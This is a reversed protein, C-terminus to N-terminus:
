TKRWFARGMWIQRAGFKWTEAGFQSTSKAMFLVSTGIRCPGLYTATKRYPGEPIIWQGWHYNGLSRLKMETVTLFLKRHQAEGSEAELINGLTIEKPHYASSCTQIMTETDAGM